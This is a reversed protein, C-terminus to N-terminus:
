APISGDSMPIGTAVAFEIPRQVKPFVAIRQDTSTDKGEFSRGIVFDHFHSYHLKAPKVLFALGM